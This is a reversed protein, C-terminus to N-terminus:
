AAVQEARRRARRARRERDYATEVPACLECLPEKHDRHRLAAALTGCPQVPRADNRRDPHRMAVRHPTEHELWLQLCTRRAVHLRRNFAARNLGLSCTAADRDTHDAWPNGCHSCEADSRARIDVNGQHVALAIIAERYPESLAAMVAPLAFREVIPEEPSATVRAGLWYACFRPASALGADWERDRYGYTTRHDKVLAWIAGKGVALLHHETPWHEASYLAEAIASWATDYLDRQDAAMTRNSGASQRALRHLDALTYGHALTTNTDNLTM